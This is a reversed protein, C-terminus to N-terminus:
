RQAMSLTCMWTQTLWSVDVQRSLSVTIKLRANKEEREIHKTYIHVHVQVHKNM